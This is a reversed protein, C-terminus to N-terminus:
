SFSNNEKEAGEMKEDTKDEGNKMDVDNPEYPNEFM